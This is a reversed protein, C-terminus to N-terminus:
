SSKCLLICTRSDHFFVILSGQQGYAETPSKDATEGLHFHILAVGRVAAVHNAIHLVIFHILTIGQVRRIDKASNVVVFHVLAIGRVATIDQEGDPIPFDISPRWRIRGIHDERDPVALEVLAIRTIWRVNKGVLLTEFHIFVVGAIRRINLEGKGIIDGDLLKHGNPIRHLVTPLPDSFCCDGAPLM